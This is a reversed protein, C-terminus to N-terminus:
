KAYRFQKQLLSSLVFLTAYYLLLAPIGIMIEGDLGPISAFYSTVATLTELVRNVGLGIIPSLVPFFLLSLVLFLGLVIAITALLTVPINSWLFVLSWRNTFYALWAWIGLHATISIWLINFLYVLVPHEPKLIKKCFPYFHLIGWVAFVSLLFGMNFIYYPAVMLIAVVTGTWIQVADARRNLSKYLLLFAIMVFARLTSPSAGTLLTYSLLLPLAILYRYSRHHYQPLLRRLLWLLCSAIVGLHFGSIALVHAVGSAEFSRRVDDYDQNKYGLCLAYFLSRSSPSLIEGLADETRSIIKERYNELRDKISEEAKGKGAVIIESKDLWAYRFYGEGKLYTYFSNNEPANKGFLDHPSSLLTVADGKIYLPLDASSSGRITAYVKHPLFVNESFPTLSLTIAGKRNLTRETIVYKRSQDWESPSNIRHGYLIGFAMMLVTWLLAVIWPSAYKFTFLLDPSREVRDWPFARDPDKERRGSISSIYIGVTLVVFAIVSVVPLSVRSAYFYVWVLAVVLASLLFYAPRSAYRTPTM